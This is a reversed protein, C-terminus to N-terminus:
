RNQGPKNKYNELFYEFVDKRNKNQLYKNYQRWYLTYNIVFDAYHKKISSMGEYDQSRLRLLKHFDKNFDIEHGYQYEGILGDLSITEVISDLDQNSPSCVLIKACQHYSLLMSIM